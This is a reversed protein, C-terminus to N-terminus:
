EPPAPPDKVFRIIAATFKDGHEQLLDTGHADGDFLVLEGDAAKSLLETEKAYPDDDRATIFLSPEDLNGVAATADLEGFTPSPSVAIIGDLKQEAGVKLAATAGMSAGAVFVKAAGRARMEAIAATLDVDLEKDLTKGESNHRFDFPFATFGNRALAIAVDIWADKTSDRMHALVVATEGSGFVFGELATGDGTEFTIAEARPAGDDPEVGLDDDTGGACAATMSVVVLVALTAVARRTVGM